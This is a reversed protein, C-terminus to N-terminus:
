MKGVARKALLVEDFATKKTRQTVGFASLKVFSSPALGLLYCFKFFLKKIFQIKKPIYQINDM